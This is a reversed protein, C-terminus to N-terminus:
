RPVNKSGPKRGTTRGQTVKDTAKKLVRRGDHDQSCKQRLKVGGWSQIEPTQDAYWADFEAAALPKILRSPVNKPVNEESATQSTPAPYRILEPAIQELRGVPRHKVSEGVSAFVNNGL